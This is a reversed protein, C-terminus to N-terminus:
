PMGVLDTNEQKEGTKLLDKRRVAVGFRSFFDGASNVGISILLEVGLNSARSEGTKCAM